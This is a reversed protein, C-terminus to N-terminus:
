IIAHFIKLKFLNWVQCMYDGNQNNPDCFIIAGDKPNVCSTVKNCPDNDTYAMEIKCCLYITDQICEEIEVSVGTAIETKLM